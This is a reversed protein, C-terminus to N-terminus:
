LTGAHLYSAPRYVIFVAQSTLPECQDSMSRTGVLGAERLPFYLRWWFPFLPVVGHFFSPSDSKEWYMIGRFIHIEFSRCSNKPQCRAFKTQGYRLHSKLGAVWGKTGFANSKLSKKLDYTFICRNEKWSRVYEWFLRVQPHIQKLLNQAARQQGVKSGTAIVQFRLLGSMKYIFRLKWVFFSAYFRLNLELFFVFWMGHLQTSASFIKPM